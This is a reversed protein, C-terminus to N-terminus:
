SIVAKGGEGYPCLAVCESCVYFTHEDFARLNMHRAATKPRLKSLIYFWLKSMQPTSATHGLCAMIRVRKEEVRIAEVPCTDACIRCEPLCGPEDIKPYYAAPLNATTVVGGLMLRAGYRSNILLGNKGITGIGTVQGMRIQNLYGV